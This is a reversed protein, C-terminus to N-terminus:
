YNQFKSVDVLNIYHRKRENMPDSINAVPSQKLQFRITYYRIIVMQIM